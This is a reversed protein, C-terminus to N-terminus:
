RCRPASPVGTVGAAEGSGLEVLGPLKDDCGNGRVVGCFVVHRDLRENGKLRPLTSKSYTDVAM